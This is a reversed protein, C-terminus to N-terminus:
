SELQVVVLTQDDEQAETGCFAQVDEFIRYM